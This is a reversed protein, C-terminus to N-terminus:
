WNISTHFVRLHTFHYYHYIFMLNSIMKMKSYERKEKM